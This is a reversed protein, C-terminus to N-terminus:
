GRAHVAGCAGIWLKIQDTGLLGTHRGCLKGSGDFAVALPLRPPSGGYTTLVAKAAQDDRALLEPPAGAKEAALRLAPADQLGVFLIRGPRAALAYSRANRLETLCPGCDARWFALITPDGTPRTRLRRGDLTHLPPPLVSLAAAAILGISTLMAGLM